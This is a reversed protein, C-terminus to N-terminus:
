PPWAPWGLCRIIITPLLDQFNNGILDWVGDDTYLKVAFGRGDRPTDSSPRSGAVTSFRVFVPTEKAPDRLLATTTRDSLGEDVQFVGHAAAGRAHM